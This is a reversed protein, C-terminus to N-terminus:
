HVCATLRNALADAIQERHPELVQMKEIEALSFYRCDTTEESTGLEGEFPEADFSLSVFQYKNGNSYETIRHPDSYVGVLQIIRVSPGTEERVERLCAETVSEGAEMIGGPLCWWGNDARRTLLVKQRSRDFIIANCGVALQGFKGIRTGYLFHTMEIETGRPM